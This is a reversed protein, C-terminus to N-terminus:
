LQHLKSLNFGAAILRHLGALINVHFDILECSQKRFFKSAIDHQIDLRDSHFMLRQGSSSCVDVDKSSPLPIRSAPMYFKCLM